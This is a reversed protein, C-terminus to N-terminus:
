EAAKKKVRIFGNHAVVNGGVFTAGKHCIMGQKFKYDTSRQIDVDSFVTLLYNEMPGYAMCYKGAATATDTLCNCASNIVFPINDITGKNGQNVISYVKKGQKDKVQAFAKLDKKNLILVSLSEVNEEGGYSYIINDLTDADIAAIELDTKPDIVQDKEEVPNYFIGKLQNQGGEGILIEKALKKRLAKNTGAVILDDYDAAALKTIEEPEEQYATIKAKTIPAYAMVTEVEHYDSGQATYGGESKGSVNMPKEYPQEYSEGGPLLKNDVMDVISSVENFTRNITDGTHKPVVVQSSGVTIARGEKLAKGRKEHDVKETKRKETGPTLIDNVTGLSRAEVEGNNIGNALSREEILSLKERLEAEEEDLNRLEEKIENLNIRDTGTLQADIKTRREAIAALREKITM